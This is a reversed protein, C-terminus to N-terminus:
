ECTSTNTFLASSPMRNRRKRSAKPMRAAASLASWGRLERCWM